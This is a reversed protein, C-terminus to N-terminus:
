PMSATCIIRNSPAAASPAACQVDQAITKRAAASLIVNGARAGTAPRVASLAVNHSNSMVAVTDPATGAAMDADAVRLYLVRPIVIKFDVHATASSKSDTATAQIHSEPTASLPLLLAATGLVGNLVWSGKVIRDV